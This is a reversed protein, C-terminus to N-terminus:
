IPLPVTAGAASISCLTLRRERDSRSICLFVTEDYERIKEAAFQEILRERESPDDTERPLHVYEWM